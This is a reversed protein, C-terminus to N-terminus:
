PIINHENKRCMLDRGWMTSFVVVGKIAFGCDQKIGVTPKDGHTVKLLCKPNNIFNKNNSGYAASLPKVSLSYAKM